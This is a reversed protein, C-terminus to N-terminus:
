AAVQPPRAPIYSDRWGNNTKRRAWQDLPFDGRRWAAWGADGLISRQQGADLSAFWRRSDTVGVGAPERASIGLSEWSLTKPMRACRGQQHDLPGPESLPHLTGNMAICSPCTRPSLHALWVWGTLVDAHAAQGAAAGARHADLTETRAITMARNLGGNFAIEGRRVMRQATIKPNAGVVVGRVLERRLAESSEPALPITRSTIQQASRAVIADITAAPVQSPVFSSPMQTLVLRAQVAAAQDVVSRLDTLISVGADRSLTTLQRAAYDLVSLLRASRAVRLKPIVEGAAADGIIAVLEKQLEASIEDWAAVWARVLARAQDDVIGAVEADLRAQLRLTDATIV